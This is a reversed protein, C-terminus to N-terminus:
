YLLYAENSCRSKYGEGCSPARVNNRSAAQLRKFCMRRVVSAYYALSLKGPSQVLLASLLVKMVTTKSHFIRALSYDFLDIMCGCM